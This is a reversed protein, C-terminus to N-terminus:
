RIGDRGGKRGDYLRDKNRRYADIAGDARNRVAECNLDVVDCWLEMDTGPEQLFRRAEDNGLSADKVAVLLVEAALWRVAAQDEETLCIPQRAGEAFPKWGMGSRRKPRGTFNPIEVDPRAERAKRVMRMATPESVGIMEGLVKLSRAKVYAALVEEPAIEKGGKKRRDRTIM